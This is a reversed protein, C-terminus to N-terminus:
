LNAHGEFGAFLGYAGVVGENCALGQRTSVREDGGVVALEGADVAEEPFIPRGVGGRGRSLMIRMVWGLRARTVPPAPRMPEWM